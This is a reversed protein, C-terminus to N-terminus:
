DKILSLEIQTLDKDLQTESSNEGGGTLSNIIGYALSRDFRFFIPSNHDGASAVIMCELSKNNQQWNQYSEIKHEHGINCITRLHNSLNVRLLRSLRENLVDFVPLEVNSNCFNIYDLSQNFSSISQIKRAKM